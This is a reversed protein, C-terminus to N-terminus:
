LKRNKRSKRVSRSKRNTKKRYSKRKAAGGRMHSIGCSTCGNGGKLPIKPIDTGMARSVAGSTTVGQIEVPSLANTM